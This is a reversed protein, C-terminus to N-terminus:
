EVVLGADKVMSFFESKRNSLLAKPTDFEIINGNSLVMVRTDFSLNPM